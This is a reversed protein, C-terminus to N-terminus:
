RNRLLDLMKQVASGRRRSSTRQLGCEQGKMWQRTRLRTPLRHCQSRHKRGQARLPDEERMRPWAKLHVTTLRVRGGDSMAIEAEFRARCGESHGQARKGEAFSRCGLFGETLGHKTIDTKNIYLRRTKGIAEAEAMAALSSVDLLGVRVDRASNSGDWPRALVDNLFTFDARETAERRGLTRVKHTGRETGVYLEDSRDSVGFFIGDERRPEVSAVRKTAGPIMFLIKEALHLLARAFKRGKRLEYATKGDPGRRRRNVMAASYKM